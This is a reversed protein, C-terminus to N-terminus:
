KGYYEKLSKDVWYLEPDSAWNEKHSGDYVQSSDPFDWDMGKDGRIMSIALLIWLVIGAHIWFKILTNAHTKYWESTIIFLYPIPYVVYAIIALILTIKSAFILGAPWSSGAYNGNQDYHRYISM